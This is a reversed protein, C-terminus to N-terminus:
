ESDELEKLKDAKELCEVADLAADYDRYFLPADQGYPADDYVTFGDPGIIEYRNPCICKVRYRNKM